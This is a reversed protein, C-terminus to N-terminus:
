IRARSIIFAALFSRRSFRPLTVILSGRGIREEHGAIGPDRGLCGVPLFTDQDKRYYIHEFVVQLIHDDGRPKAGLRIVKRKLYAIGAIGFLDIQKKSLIRLWVIGLPYM